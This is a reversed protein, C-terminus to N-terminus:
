KEAVLEEISKGSTLNKSDLGPYEPPYRCAKFVTNQPGHMPPGPIGPGGRGPGGKDAGRIGPISIRGPGRMRPERM